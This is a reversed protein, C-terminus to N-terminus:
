NRVGVSLQECADILGMGPSGVREQKRYTGASCKHVSGRVPVCMYVYSFVFYVKYFTDHISSKISKIHNLFM